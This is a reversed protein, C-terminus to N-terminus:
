KKTFGKLFDKQRQIAEDLESGNRTTSKRTRTKRTSASSSQENTKRSSTRTRTPKASTKSGTASVNTRSVTNKTATRISNGNSDKVVRTNSTSAKRSIAEQSEASDHQVLGATHHKTIHEKIKIGCPYTTDNARVYYAVEEHSKKINIIFGYKKVGLWTICVADGVKYQPKNFMNQIYIPVAKAKKAM